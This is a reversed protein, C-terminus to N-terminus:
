EIQTGIKRHQISTPKLRDLDGVEHIEIARSKENERLLVKGQWWVYKYGLEQARLKAQWLLQKNFASLHDGVYIKGTGFGLLDQNTVCKKKNLLIAEKKKYNTVKVIICPTKEPAAKLRHAAQIDNKELTVDLKKAFKIVLDEVNENKDCAVGRIEFNNKRTYQELDEIRKSLVKIKEDRMQIKNELDEVKKPLSLLLDLKAIIDDYKESIYIQSKEIAKMQDKLEVFHKEFFDKNDVKACKACIWEKGEDVRGSICKTHHMIKCLSCQLSEDYRTIKTHCTGCSMNQM